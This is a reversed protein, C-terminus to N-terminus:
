GALAAVREDVEVVASAVVDDDSAGDVPGGVLAGM